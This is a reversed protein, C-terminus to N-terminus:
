VGMEAACAGIASNESGGVRWLVADIVKVAGTAAVDEGSWGNGGGVPGVCADEMTRRLPMTEGVEAIKPDLAKTGVSESSRMPGCRNFFRSLDLSAVGSFAFATGTCIGLMSSASLWGGIFSFRLSSDASVSGIATASEVDGGCSVM